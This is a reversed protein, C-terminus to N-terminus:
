VRLLREIAGVLPGIPEGRELAGELLELQEAVDILGHARCLNNLRHAADAARKAENPMLRQVEQWLEEVAAPRVAPRIIRSSAELSITTLQGEGWSALTARLKELTIPKSIFGAMGAALCEDRRERTSYATVAFVAPKPVPCLQLIKKTLEVGNTDPLRYDTLIIDYGNEQALRIAEAGTTAWDVTYNMKALIDGLVIRNYDEDEIALARAPLTPHPTPTAPEVHAVAGVKEFPVNLYFTTEGNTSVAGVEGGMAAAYRQCIALGLGTGRINREIADDGRTFSEFLADLKDKAITPGSSTVSLTLRIASEMPTLITSVRAGPPVGYKLANNLYNAFIQRLKAADGRLSVGVPPKELFVIATGAPDVTAAAAELTDLLDFTTAEVAVRRAEIKSFDLIDDVTARLQEACNHLLRLYNAQRPLAPQERLLNVLGIVGNMPNRIEHSMSAVFESKAASAEALERTREAVIRELELNRRRIQHTRLRYIFFSLLATGLAYGGFALRSFYWPQLVVFEQRAIAGTRGLHTARVELTYARPSLSPYAVSEGAKTPIWATETPLLRREFAPREGFEDFAATGSFTVSNADAGFEAPPAAATMAVGTVPDQFSFELRPPALRYTPKLEAVELELINNGACLTLTGGAASLHQVGPVRALGKAEVTEWAVAEGERRLRGLRWHGDQEGILWVTGDGTTALRPSRLGATHLVAGLKEGYRVGDRDAVILIDGFRHLRSAGATAMRAVPSFALPPAVSSRYIGGTTTAAWVFDGVVALGSVEVPPEKLEKAVGAGVDVHYLREGSMVVLTGGPLEAIHEVASGPVSIERGGVNIKGWYGLAPGHATPAYSFFRPRREIPGKAPIQEARDEYTILLGTPWRHASLPADQSFFSQGFRLSEFVSIGRTTAVWLRGQHDAAAQAAAPSPLASPQSVVSYEAAAPNVLVVGKNYTTVALFDGWKAASTFLFLDGESRPRLIPVFDGGRKEYIWRAVVFPSASAGWVRDTKDPLPNEIPVVIGDGLEAPSNGPSTIILRGDLDHLSLRATNPVRVATTTKALLDLFLVDQKTTAILTNGRRALGWVDGAQDMGAFDLKEYLSARNLPLKMRGIANTSAVWLTKGDVLLCRVGTTRSQAIFVWRGEEFFGVRDGAAIMQGDPGVAIQAVNPEGGLRASDFIVTLPAANPALAHSPTVALGWLSLLAMGKLLYDM